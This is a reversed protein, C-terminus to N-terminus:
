DEWYSMEIDAEEVPDSELGTDNEQLMAEAFDRALKESAGAVEM